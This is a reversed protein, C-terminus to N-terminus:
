KFMLLIFYINGDDRMTAWLWDRCCMLAELTKPHLRNRHPSVFRGSTSFTSESAVTSVPIALIDRAMGQLIPYKTNTKWWSLVDFDDMQPMIPKELFYDLETKHSAGSMGQSALWQNYHVKLNVRSSFSANSGYSGSSQSSITSASASRETRKFKEEYEHFLEYCMKRVNEIEEGCSSGYIVSFYCEVLAMKYRPDLITAVAMMGHIVSWYKDFKELMKTAMGRIVEDGDVSWEILAMKVECVKPFYLNATPYQSGSFMLTVDYFLALRECISRALDWEVITPCCKFASDLRALRLFVEEYVLAVDLMLFTSNWRTRCDHVLAKSYPIEKQRCVEMFKELRKPTAKWYVVSERVNEIAKQIIEMGDRVILNMIHAACRMHFYKGRVLFYKLEIKDKLDEILADNTTCNDVTLTTLKTDVDWEM